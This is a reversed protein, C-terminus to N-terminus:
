MSAAGVYVPMDTEGSITYCLKVEPVARLSEAYQECQRVQYNLAFYARVLPQPNGRELMM